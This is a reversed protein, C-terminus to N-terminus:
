KSTELFNSWICGSFEILRYKMTFYHSGSFCTRPVSHTLSLREIMDLEKRGWQRYLGHVEGPWFVPTPLRIRKGPSRGLGLSQVWTEQMASLNRVLQAVLSAWSYQLPCGTGERASTGSGPILGPDGANYASEKGSFCWVECIHILSRM